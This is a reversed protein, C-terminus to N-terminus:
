HSVAKELGDLVATWTKEFQGRMKIDSDRIGGTLNSQTLTVRTAGEVQPALEYTVLHYNEPADAQGSMSSFHSYALRRQPEATKIEGKDEYAKGNFDGRMRIPSGPRFDSEVEAGFMFQKITRPTTLATWVKDPTAHITKSVQATAEPRRAQM